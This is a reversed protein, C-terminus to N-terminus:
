IVALSLKGHEYCYVGVAEDYNSTLTSKWGSHECQLVSSEFGDCYVNELFVPGGVPKSFNRYCVHLM